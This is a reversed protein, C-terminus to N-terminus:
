LSVLRWGSSLQVVEGSVIESEDNASDHSLTLHIEGNSNRNFELRDGEVAGMERLIGTMRTLRYEDRTSTKTKKGNYHIYKLELYHGIAPVFVAVECSPNRKSEDLAPFFSIIESRKPILIGAQHTGTLGLDNASLVKSVSIKM